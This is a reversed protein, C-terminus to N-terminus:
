QAGHGWTGSAIMNPRHSSGDFDRAFGVKARELLVPLVFAVGRVEVADEGAELGVLLARRYEATQAIDFLLVGRDPRPQEHFAATRGPLETGRRARPDERLQALSESRPRKHRQQQTLFATFHALVERHVPLRRRFGGTTCLRQLERLFTRFVGGLERVQGAHRVLALWPM